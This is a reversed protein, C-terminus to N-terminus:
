LALLMCTLKLVGEGSRYETSVVAIGALTICQLPVMNTTGLSAVLKKSATTFPAAIHLFLPAFSLMGFIGSLQVPFEHRVVACTLVMESQIAAPAGL